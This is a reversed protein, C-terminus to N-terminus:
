DIEGKTGHNVKPHGLLPLLEECSSQDKQILLVRVSAFFVDKPSHKHGYTNKGVTYTSLAKTFHPASSDSPSPTGLFPDISSPCLV